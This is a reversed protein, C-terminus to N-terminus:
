ITMHYKNERKIFAEKGGELTLIKDRNELDEITLYQIQTRNNEATSLFIILDADGNIVFNPNHTAFIIQREFKREKILQVLYDAILLSDLHAEPEDIIIPTNGLSLLTIITATCRQGFSTKELRHNDYLINFRKNTPLDFFHKLILLKFM